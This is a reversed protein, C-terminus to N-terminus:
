AACPLASVAAAAEDRTYFEGCRVFGSVLSAKVALVRGSEARRTVVENSLGDLVHFPAPAGDLFRARYVIGTDDDRFAPRFGFEGNEESRGGSGRWADSEDRLTAATWECRARRLQADLGPRFLSPIPQTNPNM